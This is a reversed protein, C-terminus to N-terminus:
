FDKLGGSAVVGSLTLAKCRSRKLFFEFMSQRANSSSAAHDSLGRWVNWFDAKKSISLCKLFDKFRWLCELFGSHATISLCGLFGSHATGTDTDLDSRRDGVTYRKFNTLFTYLDM